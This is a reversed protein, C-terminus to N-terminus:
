VCVSVQLCYRAQKTINVNVMAGTGIISLDSASLVSELGSGKILEDHIVLLAKEIHLGGFLCFYKTRGFTEKYRHQLEWTLVFVPQDCGDVPTQGPNLFEATKKNIHM